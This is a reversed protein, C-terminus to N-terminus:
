KEMTAKFAAIDADTLPLLEAPDRWRVWIRDQMAPIDLPSDFQDKDIGIVKGNNGNFMVEFPKMVGDEFVFMQTSYYNLYGAESLLYKELAELSPLSIVFWKGDISSFDYLQYGEFNLKEEGTAGNDADAIGKIALPKGDNGSSVIETGALYCDVFKKTEKVKNTDKTVSSDGNDYSLNALEEFFQNLTKVM